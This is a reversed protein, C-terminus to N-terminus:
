ICYLVPESLDFILSNFIVDPYSLMLIGMLYLYLSHHSKSNLASAARGSTKLEIGLFWM